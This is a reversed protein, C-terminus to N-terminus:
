RMTRYLQDSGLAPMRDREQPCSRPCSVVRLCVAVAAPLRAPHHFGGRGPRLPEHTSSTSTCLPLSRGQKPVPSEAPSSRSGGLLGQVTKAKPMHLGHFFLHSNELSNGLAIFKPILNRLFSPKPFCNKPTMTRGSLCFINTLLGQPHAVDVWM